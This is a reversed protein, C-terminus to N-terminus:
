KKVPHGDRGIDTGVPSVAGTDVNFLTGTVGKALQRVMGAVRPDFMRVPLILEGKPYTSVRSLETNTWIGNAKLLKEMEAKTMPLGAALKTGSIWDAPIPETSAAPAPESGPLLMLPRLVQVAGAIMAPMVGAIANAFLRAFREDDMPAPLPASTPAAVPAVPEGRRLKPFVEDATFARAEVGARKKTLLTVRDVGGETLVTLAQANPSPPTRGGLSASAKFERLDPGRLVKFHEGELVENKWEGQILNAIGKPQYGLAADLDGAIVVVAGRFPYSPIQCGGLALGGSEDVSVIPPAVAPASPTPLRVLGPKPEVHRVRLPTAEVTARAEEATLLRFRSPHRVDRATSSGVVGNSDYQYAYRDPLVGSITVPTWGSRIRHMM